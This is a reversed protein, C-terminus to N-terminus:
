FQSTFCARLTLRQSVGLHEHEQWWSVVDTDFMLQDELKVLFGFYWQEATVNAGLEQLDVIVSRIGEDRLQKDSPLYESSRFCSLLTISYFYVKCLM